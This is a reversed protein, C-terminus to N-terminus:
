LPHQLRKASCYGWGGVSAASVSEAPRFIIHDFFWEIALKM